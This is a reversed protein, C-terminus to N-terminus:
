MSPIDIIRGKKGIEKIQSKLNKELENKPKGNGMARILEKEAESTVSSQVLIIGSKRQITKM